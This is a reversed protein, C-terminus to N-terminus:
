SLPLPLSSYPPLSPPPLSPLSLPLPSPPSLSPSPPPLPFLPSPPPLPPLSLPPLSRLLSSFHPSHPSTSYFFWLLIAVGNMMSPHHTFPVQCQQFVSSLATM